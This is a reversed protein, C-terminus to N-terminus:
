DKYFEQEDSSSNSYDDSDMHTYLIQGNELAFTDDIIRPLCYLEPNAQVKVQKFSVSDEKAVIFSTRTSDEKIKISFGSPDITLETSSLLEFQERSLNNENPYTTNSKTASISIEKDNPQKIYRLMSSMIRCNEYLRNVNLERMENLAGAFYEEARDFTKLESTEFFRSLFSQFDPLAKIEPAFFDALKEKKSLLDIQEKYTNVVYEYKSNM